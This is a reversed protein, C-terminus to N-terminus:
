SAGASKAAMPGSEHAPSSALPVRAASATARERPAAGPSVAGTASRGATNTIGPM